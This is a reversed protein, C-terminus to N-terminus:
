NLPAVGSHEVVEFNIDPWKQGEQVITPLKNKLVLINWVKDWLGAIVRASDNVGGRSDLYNVASWPAITRGRPALVKAFRRLAVVNIWYQLSLQQRVREITESRGAKAFIVAIDGAPVFKRFRVRADEIDMTALYDLWHDTYEQAATMDNNFDKAATARVFHQDFHTDAADHSLVGLFHAFLQRCHADKVLQEQSCQEHISTLYTNLFTPWHSFESWEEGFLYGADPFITGSLVADREERLLDQLHSATLYLSARQSVLLHLIIGSAQALSASLVLFVGLVLCPFRRM